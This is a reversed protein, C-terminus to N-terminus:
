NIQGKRNWKNSYYNDNHNSSKNQNDKIKELLDNQRRTEEIIKQQQDYRNDAAEKEYYDRYRGGDKGYFPRNESM